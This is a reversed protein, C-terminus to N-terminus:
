RAGSKEGARHFVYAPHLEFWQRDYVGIVPKGDRAIRDFQIHVRKGDAITVVGNGVTVHAVRDGKRFTDFPHASM